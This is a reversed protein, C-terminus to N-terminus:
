ICSKIAMNIYKLDIQIPMFQLARSMLSTSSKYCVVQNNKSPTLPAECSWSCSPSMFTAEGSWHGVELEDGLRGGLARELAPPRGHTDSPRCSAVRLLRSDYAHERRSYALAWAGSAKEGFVTVREKRLTNAHMSVYEIFQDFTESIRNSAKRNRKARKSELINSSM